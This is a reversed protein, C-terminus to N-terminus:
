NSSRTEGVSRSLFNRKRYQEAYRTRLHQRPLKYSTSATTEILEVILANRDVTGIKESFTPKNFRSRSDM